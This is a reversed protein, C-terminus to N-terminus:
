VEKLLVDACGQLTLVPLSSFFGGPSSWLGHQARFVDAFSVNKCTLLVGASGPDRLWVDVWVKHGDEEMLHSDYDVVRHHTKTGQYVQKPSLASRQLSQTGLIVGDPTAGMFMLTGRDDIIPYFPIVPARYGVVGEVSYDELVKYYDM